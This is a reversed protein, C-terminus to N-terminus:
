ARNAMTPDRIATRTPHGTTPIRTGANAATAVARGDTPTRGEAAVEAAAVVVWAVEVVVWEVEVVVWEVEGALDVKKEKVWTEGLVPDRM